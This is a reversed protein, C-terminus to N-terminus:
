VTVLANEGWNIDADLAFAINFKAIGLEVAYKAADTTTVVIQPERMIVGDADRVTAEALKLRVPQSNLASPACAVAEIATPLWSFMKLADSYESDTGAFFDRPQRVKSHSIKKTIRGIFSTSAEDPHGFAVVFPIKEYVEVQTKVHNRSFTGGVFCSGLGLRVCEIAFQEAFYGARELANGFSDDILVALYNNVGRFMGYSRGVGRFPGDDGFVLQFNLGAEHTNVFTAFAKLKNIVSETLAEGTYARVSHRKQLLEINKNM